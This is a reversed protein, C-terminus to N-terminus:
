NVLSERHVAESAPLTPLPLSYLPEAAGDDSLRYRKLLLALLEGISTAGATQAPQRLADSNSEFLYDIM